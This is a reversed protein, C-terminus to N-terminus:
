QGTKRSALKFANYEKKWADEDDAATTIPGEKASLEGAKKLAARHRAVINRNFSM